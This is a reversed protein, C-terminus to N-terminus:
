AIPLSALPLFNESSDSMVSKNEDSESQTHAM